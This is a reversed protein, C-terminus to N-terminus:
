VCQQMQAHGQEAQQPNARQNPSLILKVQSSEAMGLLWEIPKGEVEDIVFGERLKSLFSDAAKQSFVAYTVDDIYTCVLIVSGDPAVRRFLCPDGLISEFGKKILHPHIANWFANSAHKLGYIAKYL